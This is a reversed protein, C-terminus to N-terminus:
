GFIKIDNAYLDDNTFTITKKSDINNIYEDIIKNIHTLEKYSIRLLKINNDKCYKTKINDNNKTYYQIIIYHIM